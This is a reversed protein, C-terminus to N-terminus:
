LYKKFYAVACWIFWANIAIAPLLILRPDISVPLMLYIGTLLISLYIGAVALNHRDSSERAARYRRVMRVVYGDILAGVFFVLAMPVLSLVVGLRVGYLQLGLMATEIVPWSMVYFRALIHDDVQQAKQAATRRNNPAYPDFEEPRSYRQGVADIGSNVFIWRYLTNATTISRNYQTSTSDLRDILAIDNRLVSHLHTTGAFFAVCLDVLLTIVFLFVFWKLTGLFGPLRPDTSKGAM